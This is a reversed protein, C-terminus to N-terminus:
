SKKIRRRLETTSYNHKRPIYCIPVIDKATIKDSDPTELMGLPHVKKLYDSGLFRVDIDSTLLITKLDEETEYPMIMDVFKCGQLQITRELVSQVPKNKEKRELQPNVHLGVILVDCKLKCRELFILHGAHLLDFAGATFGVVKRKMTNEEM